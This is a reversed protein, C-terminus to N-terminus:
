TLERRQFVIVTLTLIIVIYSIGYIATWLLSNAELPLGYGAATKLDFANLNPFLWTVIEIMGGFIGMGNDSGDSFMKRLIEVNQGIFYTCATLLFAIYSTTTLSTFFQALVTVILLSLYNFCLSLFFIWWSFNPPIFNPAMIMTTKVSIAAFIGLFAVSTGVMLALGFYKGLVYQWRAVPRSIIMYVTRKELDRALLNIGMFFIIILGAMSVMSLGLDVSVKGLDHAFMQTFIVNVLSLLIAFILIGILIRNRVGEKYTIKGLLWVQGM